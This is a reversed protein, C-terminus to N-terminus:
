SSQSLILQPPPDGTFSAYIDHTFPASFLCEASAVFHYQKGRPPTRPLDSPFLLNTNSKYVRLSTFISGTLAWNAEPFM